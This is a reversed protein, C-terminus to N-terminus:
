FHFYTYTIAHNETILLVLLSQVLRITNRTSNLVSKRVYPTASERSHSSYRAPHKGDATHTTKGATLSSFKIVHRSASSTKRCHDPQKAPYGQKGANLQGHEIRDWRESDGLTLPRQHSYVQTM